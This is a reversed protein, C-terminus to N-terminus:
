KGEAPKKEPGTRLAALVEERTAHRDIVAIIGSVWAAQEPNHPNTSLPVLVARAEDLRNGRILVTAAHLAYTDVMPALAHAELAATILNDSPPEGPKELARSYYYLNPANQPDLTYAKGMEARAKEMQSNATEGPAITHHMTMLYWAQGLRFHAEADDPATAIRATYIPVAKEEDGVIIEARGLVDRAFDDDPFKAAEDRIQSLLRPRDSGGYTCMRDAADLLLLRDASKPMATVKVEPQALDKFRYVSATMHDLYIYLTHQLSKVPVGFAKEFAAVADDGKRYDKLFADFQRHRAEDSMIWHTLLWAQAYFAGTREDNDSHPRRWSDRLLDEYSITTSTSSLLWRARQSFAMGIVAQDDQLRTTSYFEAFGEVFWPPYAGDAHMYMFDHAYEHFLITQSTNEDQSAADHTHRIYDDQFIAVAGSGESCGEFFGGVNQPAKPWITTLQSRGGILYVPLHPLTQEDQPSLAYFRSLIQYYFELQVLYARTTQTSNLSYLTFHKSEAKVWNSAQAPVTAALGVCAMLAAITRRNKRM